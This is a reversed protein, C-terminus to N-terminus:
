YLGLIDARISTKVMPGPRGPHRCSTPWAVAGWTVNDAGGLRHPPSNLEAAPLWTWRGSALAKPPRFMSATEANPLVGPSGLGKPLRRFAAPLWISRGFPAQVLIP